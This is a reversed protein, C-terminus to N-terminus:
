EPIVRSEAEFKQYDRYRITMRLRVPGNTFHLTDDAFTQVPFWYDGVRERITTFYPFLNEKGPKSSYVQPVAKGESRIISYDRQDIWLLGEFMRQGYLIQKPRVQLLWCQVGDLTEEGKYSSEYRSVRDLTLLLPQVERIDRFDEETLRLRKLNDSPREAFRETREGSPSFIVERVERYTGGTERGDSYEQLVVTQRYLYNARVGESQTEREAVRRILDRPPDAAFACFACSLVAFRVV